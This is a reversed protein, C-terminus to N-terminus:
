VKAEIQDSNVRVHMNRRLLMMIHHRFYNLRTKTFISAMQASDIFIEHKKIIKSWLFVKKDRTPKPRAPPQAGIESLDIWFHLLIMGPLIVRYHPGVGGTIRKDKTSIIIKVSIAVIKKM